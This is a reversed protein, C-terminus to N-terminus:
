FLIIFIIITYFFSNKELLHNAEGQYTSIINTAQAPSGSYSEIIETQVSITSSHTKRINTTLVQGEIASEVAINSTTTYPGTKTALSGLSVITELNVESTQSNNDELIPSTSNDNDNNNNNVIITTTRSTTTSSVAVTVGSRITTTYPDESEQAQTIESTIIHSVDKSLSTTMPIEIVQSISSIHNENAMSGTSSADDDDDDPITTSIPIDKPISDLSNSASPLNRETSVSSSGVEIGAVIRASSYSGDQPPTTSYIITGNLSIESVSSVPSSSISATTSETLTSKSSTIISPSLETTSSNDFNLIGIYQTVTNSSESSSISTIGSSYEADDLIYNTSTVNPSILPTETVINKVSVSSSITSTPNVPLESTSLVSTSSTINNSSSPVDTIGSSSVKSPGKSSLSLHASFTSTSDEIENLSSSILSISKSTSITNSSSNTGPSFSSHVEHEFLLSVSTSIPELTTTIHTISSVNSSSTITPLSLKTNIITENDSTAFPTEKTPLSLAASSIITSQELKLTTNIKSSKSVVVESFLTTEESSLSFLRADLSDSVTSSSSAGSSSSSTSSVTTVKSTGELKPERSLQTESTILNTSITSSTNENTSSNAVNIHTSISLSTSTTSTIIPDLSSSQISKTQSTVAPESSSITSITSPSETNSLTSNKFSAVIQSHLMSASSVIPSIINQTTLKSKSSSTVSQTESTSITMDLSSLSSTIINSVSTTQISSSTLISNSKVTAYQAEAALETPVAVSEDISRTALSNSVLTSIDAYSPESSTTTSISTISLGTTSSSLSSILPMVEFSFEGLYNGPPDYECVFYFTWENNCNRIACGLKQSDKWVVQTFHGTKESYQPDSYNYYQIEDYWADTAEIATYGIALNEGYPEQSHVLIGSCDYKAAWDQAFSALTDDWVLPPTDVHLARLRNHEDLVSQQLSPTLAYSANFAYTRTTYFLLTLIVLFM